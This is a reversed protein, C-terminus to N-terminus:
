YLPFVRIWSRIFDMFGAFMNIICLVKPYANVHQPNFFYYNVPTKSLVPCTIFPWFISSNALSKKKTRIVGGSYTKIKNRPTAAFNIYIFIDIFCKLFDSGFLKKREEGPFSAHHDSSLLLHACIVWYCHSSGTFLSHIFDGPNPHVALM